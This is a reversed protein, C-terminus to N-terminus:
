ETLADELSRTSPFKEINMKMVQPLKTQAAVPLNVIAGIPPSRPHHHSTVCQDWGNLSNDSFVSFSVFSIFSISSLFWPSNIKGRSPLSQCLCLYLPQCLLRPQNKETPVVLPHILPDDICPNILLHRDTVVDKCSPLNRRHHEDVGNRPLNGTNKPPFFRLFFFTEAPFKPAALPLVGVVRPRLLKTAQFHRPLKQRTVMRLDLPPPPSM